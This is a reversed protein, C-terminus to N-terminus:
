ILMIASGQTGAGASMVKLHKLGEKLVKISCEQQVEEMLLGILSSQRIAGNPQRVGHQM